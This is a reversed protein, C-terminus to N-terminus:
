SSHLAQGLMDRGANERRMFKDVSGETTKACPREEWAQQGMIQKIRKKIRPGCPHKSITDEHTWEYLICDPRPAAYEAEEFDLDAGQTAMHDAVAHLPDGSHGHVKVFTTARVADQRARVLTMIGHMVDHDVDKVKRPSPCFDRSQCWALRQLAAASDVLIVLTPTQEMTRLALAIAM